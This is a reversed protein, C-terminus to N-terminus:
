AGSVGSFVLLISMSWPCRQIPSGQGAVDRMEQGVDSHVVADAHARDGTLDTPQDRM